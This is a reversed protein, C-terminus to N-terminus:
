DPLLIPTCGRAVPLWWDGMGRDALGRTANVKEVGHGQGSRVGSISGSLRSHLGTPYHDLLHVSSGGGASRGGCEGVDEEEDEWM